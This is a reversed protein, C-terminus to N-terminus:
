PTPVGEQTFMPRAFHQPKEDDIYALAHRKINMWIAAVCQVPYGEHTDSFKVAEMVPDAEVREMVKQAEDERLGCDTLQKLFAERLTM